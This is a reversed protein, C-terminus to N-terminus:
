QGFQDDISDVTNTAPANLKLKSTPMNEILIIINLESYGGDM